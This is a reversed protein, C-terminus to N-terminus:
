SASRPRDDPKSALLQQILQAVAPPLQPAVKAVQPADGQIVARLLSMTDPDRGDFPPRGTLMHYLVCGLSYLDARGDVSRGPAQEPAMYLPTGLVHGTGTLGTNAEMARAIGFDILKVRFFRGDREELWINAPKIDRHVLGRAHAVVLGEAAERAIRLADALPL